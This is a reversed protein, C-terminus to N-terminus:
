QVEPPSVSRGAGLEFALAFPSKSEKITPRRPHSFLRAIRKNFFRRPVTGTSLSRGSYRNMRLM